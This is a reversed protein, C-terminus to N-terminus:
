TLIPPGSDDGITVDQPTGRWETQATLAHVERGNFSLAVTLGEFDAPSTILVSTDPWNPLPVLNRVTWDEPATIDAATLGPGYAWIHKISERYCEEAIGHLAASFTFEISSTEPGESPLTGRNPEHPTFPLPEAPLLESRAHPETGRTNPTWSM